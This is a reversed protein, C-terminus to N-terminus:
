FLANDREGLDIVELSTLSALSNALITRHCCEPVAEKCMLASPKSKMMSAIKDVMKAQSPLIESRYRDFVAKYSSQDDLQQRWASPVGVEPIHVYEIGVGDTARELTSKHFGYRRAVPNERVDILRGIGRRLLKDLLADLSLGEYGVTYIAIDARPRRPKVVGKVVSNLRFWENSEYVRDRLRASSWSGYQDITTKVGTVSARKGLESGRETVEVRNDVSRLLGAEELKNLDHYLAFSFPGFQYPVFEFRHSSPLEPHEEQLFFVWKVLQLKEASGSSLALLNLLVFQRGTVGKGWM